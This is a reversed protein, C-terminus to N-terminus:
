NQEEHYNSKSYILYRKFIRVGTKKKYCFNKKFLLLMMGVHKMTNLYFM